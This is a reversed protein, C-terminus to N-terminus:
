NTELTKEEWSLKEPNWYFGIPFHKGLDLMSNLLKIALEYEHLKVPVSMKKINKEYFGQFSAPPIFTSGLTGVRSERQRELSDSLHIRSFSQSIAIIVLDILDKRRSSEKGGYESITAFVKDAIQDTVQYIRYPTSAIGELPIRNRPEILDAPYSNSSVVTLDVKIKVPEAVGFYADFTVRRGILHPQADTAVLEESKVFQFRCFDNLDIECVKILDKLAQEISVGTRFIDVDTTARADPVRALMGTGGKLVWPSNAKLHFVRCLFRDRLWSELHGDLLGRNKAHHKLATRLAKASQYRSANETM